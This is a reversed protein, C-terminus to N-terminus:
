TCLWVLATRLLKSCNSHVKDWAFSIKVAVICNYSGVTLSRGFIRKPVYTRINNVMRFSNDSRSYLKFCVTIPVVYLLNTNNM